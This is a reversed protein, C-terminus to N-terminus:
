TVKFWTAMGAAAHELMHCHFIWNGPARAVFAIERDERAFMLLTDRLPGFQGEALIERFHFGHLHMAHPFSTDNRIRLRVSEGRSIEALPAPTMGVEGNFAWFHNAEALARMGKTEGLHRAERLGGMAGGEMHLDLRRATELGPLDMDPNPPLPAPPARRALATEPAAVPFATLSYGEQGEIWVLHASEGAPAVVDVFLDVRQGPAMLFVEELKEPTELPMGDYAMVWGELGSLSLQFIRANAANILRLRLRQNQQAPLSLEAKGNVAVYNGIRGAHSRDHRNDFDITIQATEPDLRWDDLLLVHEADIDQPEPEEVILAGYLGRAVQAFSQNHSHYWFTGADGAVFDYAFSGGPPVAEQTMGPVGDMANEIRLGHWHITTPDPLTNVLRRRLREGQRLRIEPGPSGGEYGWIETMPYGEPALQIRGPAATLTQLPDGAAVSAQAPGLGVTLACLATASRLFGRRSLEM